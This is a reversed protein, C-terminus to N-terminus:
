TASREKITRRIRRTGITRKPYKKAWNVVTMMLYVMGDDSDSLDTDEQQEELNRGNEEEFAEVYNISAAAKKRKAYSDNLPVSGVISNARHYKLAKIGSKM